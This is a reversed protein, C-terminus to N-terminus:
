VHVFWQNPTSLCAYPSSLSDWCYDLPVTELQETWGNRVTRRGKVCGLKEHRRVIAISAKWIEPRNESLENTVETLSHLFASKGVVNTSAKDRKSLIPRICIIAHRNRTNKKEM